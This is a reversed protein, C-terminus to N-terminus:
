RGGVTAGAAGAQGATEQEGTQQEAILKRVTGKLDGETGLARMRMVGDGDLVVYTPYGAVHFMDAVTHQDDWVNVGQMRHERVYNEWTNRSDDASVELLVFKSKDFMEATSQIYGSDSRCASCWTAWFDILVVKGALADLSVPKGDITKLEFTPAPERRAIEVNGALHKARTCEEASVGPAAACATFERTADADRRMAALVRAHLMRAPESAPDDSAARESMTEAEKLSAAAKRPNKEDGGRGETQAFYLSYFVQAGLLEGQARSKADGASSTMQKITGEADHLLDLKLQVRMLAALCATCHGGAQKVALRYSDMAGPYQRDREYKAGAAMAKEASPPVDIASQARAAMSAVGVNLGLGMVLLVRGLFSM